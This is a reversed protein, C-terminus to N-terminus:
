NRLEAQNYTEGDTWLKGVGYVTTGKEDKGIFYWMAWGGYIQSDRRWNQSFTYPEGAKMKGKPCNFLKVFDKKDMRVRLNWQNNYFLYAGIEIIQIDSTYSIVSTTHKWFYTEPEDIDTSAKVPSPFHNVFLKESLNDFKSPLPANEATYTTTDQGSVQYTFCCITAIIILTSLKICQNM